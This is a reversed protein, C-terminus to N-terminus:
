TLLVRYVTPTSPSRTVTATRHIYRYIRQFLISDFPSMSAFLWAEDIDSNRLPRVKRLAQWSDDQLYDLVMAFSFESIVLECILSTEQEMCPVLSLGYWSLLKKM